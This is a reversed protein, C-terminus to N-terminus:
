SENLGPAKTHMALTFTPNTGSLGSLISTFHPHSGGRLKESCSFLEFPNASAKRRNKGIGTM